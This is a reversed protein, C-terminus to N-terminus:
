ANEGVTLDPCLSLEQYAMRVGLSEAVSLDYGAATDYGSVTLDGGDRPEIGALTRVFTSKGAGNHGVLGLVEGRQVTLTVGDLARTRGYSKSIAGASVLVSTGDRDSG